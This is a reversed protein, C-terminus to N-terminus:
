THGCIATGGPKGVVGSDGTMKSLKTGRLPTAVAVIVAVAVAVVVAVVAVVAVLVNVGGLIM